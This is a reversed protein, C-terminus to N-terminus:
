QEMEDLVVQQMIIVVVVEVQDTLEITQLELQQQQAEDDLVLESFELLIVRVVEVVETNQQHEQYLILHVLEVMVVEYLVIPMQVMEDLVVEDDVDMTDLAQEQQEVMEDNVVQVVQEVQGDVEEDVDVM